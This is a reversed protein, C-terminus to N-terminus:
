PSLEKLIRGCGKDTCFHWIINQGNTDEQESSMASACEPCTPTITDITSMNTGLQNKEKIHTVQHCVAKLDGKTGANGGYAGDGGTVVAKWRKQNNHGVSKTIKCNGVRRNAYKRLLYGLQRADPRSLHESVLERMESHTEPNEKTDHLRQIIEATTLGGKGDDMELLGAVLLRLAGGADDNQKAYELTAFPDALGAWVVAGRVIKGWSEYSGFRKSDPSPCGAAFYGRLIFLADSVLSPRCRRTYDLLNAVRFDSRSEPAELESDLRIPLVRRSMDSRFTLNNGTAMWVTKMELNITRNEGLVRDQWRGSTLVADLSASGFQRDINDILVAPSGEMAVATIQKRMEDDRAVYATRAATHGYAIISAVDVLMSKGSGRVNATIAFLPVQGDIAPRAIMSLLMAVWAAKDNESQFPFDRVIDALSSAASQADCKRVDTPVPGFSITPRYILGTAADHGLTQLISGDRRLTPATAIGELTPVTDAYYGRKIIGDILWGPPSCDSQLIEGDATTKERVLRVTATIIPDLVAPPLQRIRATGKAIRVRGDPTKGDPKVEDIVNVLVGGRQYVAFSDDRGSPKEKDGWTLRGIHGLVDNIHLDHRHDLVVVPRGDDSDPAVDDAKDPTLEEANGIATLVANHGLKSIVDRVDDGATDRLEGPLRAVLVVKAIELLRGGTKKAGNQGASDLDPVIVVDCGRFLEAYEAPMDARPLGAALLGMGDLAAADKVGEVLHWTEGSQPLQGPFFMGSSGVGRKFKGKGSPEIDFYSHIEGKADYVDVRACPLKARGRKAAQVGFRRFSDAPMKKAKAVTEVIDGSYQGSQSDGGWKMGLYNAIAKAADSQRAYEGWHHVTDIIDGTPKGDNCKRCNLRGHQEPGGDRVDPFLVSAGGCIPCPHDKPGKTLCEVPLATLATIIEGCRGAAAEKVNQFNNTNNM